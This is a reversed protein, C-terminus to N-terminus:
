RDEALYVVGFGGNALKSAFHYKDKINGKTSDMFYNISPGGGDSKMTKSSQSSSGVSVM